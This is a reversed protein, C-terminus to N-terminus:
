GNSQPRVQFSSIAHDDVMTSAGLSVSIIQIEMHAQELSSLNYKAALANRVQSEPDIIQNVQSELTIDLPKKIM